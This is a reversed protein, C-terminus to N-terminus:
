YCGSLFLIIFLACMLILLVKLANQTLKHCEKLKLLLLAAVKQLDPLDLTPAGVDIDVQENCDFENGGFEITSHEAIM